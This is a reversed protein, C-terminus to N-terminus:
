DPLIEDIYAAMQYWIEVKTQDEDPEQLPFFGGSGDPSYTRYVLAQLMEEVKADKYKSIPDRYKEFGLNLMFQWAWGEPTGGVTFAMRRSLGIMVELVSCPFIFDMGTRFEHRLELGDQLRNDDNPVLWVFETYSMRGLVSGHISDYNEHNEVQSVLWHYYRMWLSESM